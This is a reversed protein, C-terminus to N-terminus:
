HISRGVLFPREYVPQLFQLVPLRPRSDLGTDVPEREPVEAIVPRQITAYIFKSNIPSRSVPDIESSCALYDKEQEAAAVLRCLM